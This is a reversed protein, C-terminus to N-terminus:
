SPRGFLNLFKRIEKLEIRYERYKDNITPKHNRSIVDLTITKELSILRSTLEYYYKINGTKEYLDIYKKYDFNEM